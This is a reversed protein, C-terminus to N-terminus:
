KERKTRAAREAKTKVKHCTTCLVQMKSATVYLREIFTDWDVFGVKPDVVPKKHDVQVEKHPFEKCCDACKFHM